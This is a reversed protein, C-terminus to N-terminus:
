RISPEFGAWAVTQHLGPDANGIQADGLEVGEVFWQLQLEEVGEVLLLAVVVIGCGDCCIVKCCCCHCVGLIAFRGHAASSLCCFLSVM